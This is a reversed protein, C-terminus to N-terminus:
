SHALRELDPVLRVATQQPQPEVTRLSVKDIGGHDCREVLRQRLMKAVALEARNNEVGFTRMETEAGADLLMQRTLAGGHQRPQM